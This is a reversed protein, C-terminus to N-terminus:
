EKFGYSNTLDICLSAPIEVLAVVEKEDFFNGGFDLKKLNKWLNSESLTIVGKINILNHSIILIQLNVWSMNKSLESLGEDGILNYSLNLTILNKWSSNESLARAGQNGLKNYSLDLTQLNIWSTDKSLKISGEDRFFNHSLNLIKLKNWVNPRAIIEADYSGLLSYSFNIEELNICASFCLFYRCLLEHVNNNCFTLKKLKSFKKDKSILQIVRLNFDENKLSLETFDKSDSYKLFRILECDLIIDSLSLDELKTTVLNKIVNLIYKIGINLLNDHLRLIKLQTWTRNIGISTITFVGLKNSSMDLVVLNNWVDNAAIAAGGKNEIKNESLDLEELNTWLKNTGIACAGIDSIKNMSLNLKKINRWFQNNGIAAATMDGIHTQKLIIEELNTWSPNSAIKMGGEDGLRCGSLDLKTLNIWHICSSLIGAQNINIAQTTLVVERISSADDTNTLFINELTGDDFTDYSGKDIFTTINKESLGTSYHAFTGKLNLGKCNFGRLKTFSDFCPSISEFSLVNGKNVMAIQLNNPHLSLKELNLKNESQIYKISRGNAIDRVEISKDVTPLIFDKGFIFSIHNSGSIHGPSNLSKITHGRVCDIVNINGKITRSAIQKGDPSFKYPTLGQQRRKTIYKGTILNLLLFGEEKVGVVVIESQNASFEWNVMDTAGSSDFLLIELDLGPWHLWIRDDQSPITEGISDFLLIKSDDNISCLWAQNDQYIIVRELDPSVGCVHGDDIYFRRLFEGSEIDWIDIAEDVLTLIQKEDVSFPCNTVSEFSGIFRM